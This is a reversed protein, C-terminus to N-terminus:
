EINRMDKTNLEYMEIKENAPSNAINEYIKLIAKYEDQLRLVEGSLHKDYCAFESLEKSQEIKNLSKVFKNTFSDIWENFDKKVDILTRRIQTKWVQILTMNPTNEIITKRTMQKISEFEEQHLKYQKDLYILGKDDLVCLYCKWESEQKSYFVAPRQHMKCNLNLDCDPYKQEEKLLFTDELLKKSIHGM